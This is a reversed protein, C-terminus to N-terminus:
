LPVGFELGELDSYADAVSMGQEEQDSIFADLSGGPTMYTQAAMYNQLRIQAWPLMLGLSLVAVVANSLAIWFLTLPKITSRFTHGGKMAAANFTANRVIAQYIFSAPMLGAIYGVYILGIVGLGAPGIDDFSDAEILDLLSYITSAFVLGMVLTVLLVWSAAALIAILFPKIGIILSFQAKGLRANNFVFLKVARDVIPMAFFGLGLAGLIMLGGIVVTGHTSFYIAGISFAGLGAYLVVPLLIFVLFARWVSGVFNFRVNSYSSMRANFQMSRVVLWPLIVMLALAMLGGLIPSLNSLFFFLLYGVVFIIRGILIQGGTAHYDFNRGAVYTNNYFYKKRRVKAWASYIGFTAISLLLNVIWIGFWERATGYFEFRQTEGPNTDTSLDTM